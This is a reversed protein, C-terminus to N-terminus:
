YYVLHDQDVELRISTPLLDPWEMLYANEKNTLASSEGSIKGERYDKEEMTPGLPEPFDFM